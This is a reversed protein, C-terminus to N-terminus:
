LSRKLKEAAKGEAIVNGQKDEIITKSGGVGLEERIVYSHKKRRDDSKLYDWITKRVESANDFLFDPANHDIIEGNRLAEKNCSPCKIGGSTLIADVTASCLPCTVCKLLNGQMQGQKELQAATSLVPCDPEYERGEEHAREGSEALSLVSRGRLRDDLAAVYNHRAEELLQQREEDSLALAMIDIVAEMHAATIDPHQDVFELSNKESTFHGGAYWEGGFQEALSADYTERIITPLKRKTVEDASIVYRQALVEESSLGDPLVGGFRNVVAQLAQYNSQELSLTTTKVGSRTREHIRIKALGRERNYGELQTVGQEVADPITSTVIFINGDLEGRALREAFYAEELELERRKVEFDIDQRFRAVERAAELGQECVDVLRDGFESYVHGHEDVYYDFSSEVPLMLRESADTKEDLEISAYHAEIFQTKEKALTVM